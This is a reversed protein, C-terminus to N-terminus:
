GGMRLRIPETAIGIGGRTTGSRHLSHFCTALCKRIASRVIHQAWAVTVQVVLL